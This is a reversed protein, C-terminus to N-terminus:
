TGCPARHMKAIEVCQMYYEKCTRLVEMCVGLSEEAQQRAEYEAIRLDVAGEVAATCTKLKARDVDRAIIFAGMVVSNLVVLMWFRYFWKDKETEM